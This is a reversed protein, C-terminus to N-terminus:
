NVDFARPHVSICINGPEGTHIAYNGATEQIKVKYYGEGTTGLQPTPLQHAFVWESRSPDYRYLFLPQSSHFGALAVELDSGSTVAKTQVLVKPHFADVVTIEGPISVSGQVAEITYQGREMGPLLSWRMWHSGAALSHTIPEGNSSSITLTVPQSADLGKAYLCVQEGVEWTSDGASCTPALAVIGQTEGAPLSALFPPPCIGGGPEIDSLIAAIGSPPINTSSGGASSGGNGGASVTPLTSVFLYAGAVVQESPLCNVRQIDTQSTGTRSAIGSLTDGAVIQYRVWNAPRSITCPVPTPTNTAPPIPPAPANSLALVASVESFLSSATIWCEEADLSAPCAVKWWAEDASQAIIEVQAEAAFVGIAPYVQGPGSRINLPQLLRAQASGSVVVTVEVTATIAPATISIEVTPEVAVATVTLQRTETPQPTVIITAVPQDTPKQEGLASSSPTVTPTPTFTPTPTPPQTDCGGLFFALCLLLLIVSRNRM